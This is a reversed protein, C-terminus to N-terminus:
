PFVLWHTGQLYVTFCQLLNVSPTANGLSPLCFLSMSVRVPLPCETIRSRWRGKTVFDSNEFVV